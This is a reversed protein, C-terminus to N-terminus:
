CAARDEGHTSYTAGDGSSQDEGNMPSTARLRGSPAM